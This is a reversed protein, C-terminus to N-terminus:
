IDATHWVRHSVRPHFSRSASERLVVFQRSDDLLVSMVQPFATNACCKAFVMMKVSEANCHTPKHMDVMETNRKTKM